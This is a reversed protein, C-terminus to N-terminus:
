SGSQASLSRALPAALAALDDGVFPPAPTPIPEDGPGPDRKAVGTLVLGFPWGLTKAFAGDTSPRDGVMVGHHGFRQRVVDAM